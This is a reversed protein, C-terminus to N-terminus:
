FATQKLKSLMKLMMYLFCIIFVAVAVIVVVIAVVVNSCAMVVVEALGVTWGFPLHTERLVTSPTGTM